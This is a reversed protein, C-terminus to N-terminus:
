NQGIREAFFKLAAQCALSRHSNLGKWDPVEALTKGEPAKEPFFVPDYGFGEEGQQELSIEGKLRGEFFFIEEPSLYFCLVCVFQARREEGEKGELKKLLLANREQSSLNDGGFRATHIGLEGPLAEVDLGSDDSMVPCKFKEYYGMAKKLANERYTAGDEIVEIKESAAVISLVNGPFLSAFEEAKHANGSALTIELSM